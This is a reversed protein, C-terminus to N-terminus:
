KKEAGAMLVAEKLPVFIYKTEVIYVRERTPAAVLPMRTQASLPRAYTVASMVAVFVVMAIYFVHLVNRSM